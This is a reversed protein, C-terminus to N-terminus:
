ISLHTLLLKDLWEEVIAASLLACGADSQKELQQMYEGLDFEQDDFNQDAM